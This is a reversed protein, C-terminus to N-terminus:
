ADTKWAKVGPGLGLKRDKNAQTDKHKALQHYKNTSQM